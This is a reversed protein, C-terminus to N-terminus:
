NYNRFNSFLSESTAKVICAEFSYSWWSLVSRLSFFNTKICKRPTKKISVKLVLPNLANQHM